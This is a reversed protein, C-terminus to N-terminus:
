RRTETDDGEGGDSRVAIVAWLVLAVVLVVMYLYYFFM